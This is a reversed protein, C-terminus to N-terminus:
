PLLTETWVDATPTLDPEVTKRANLWTRLQHLSWMNGPVKNLKKINDPRVVCKQTVSKNTLHSYVNSPRNPDYDNCGFRVYPERFYYIKLPNWSSVVVWVRIDVKRNM